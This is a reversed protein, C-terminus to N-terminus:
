YLSNVLINSMMQFEEGLDIIVVKIQLTHNYVPIDIKSIIPGNENYHLFKPYVLAVHNCRNKVSYALMQYIDSQSIKLNGNQDIAEKYKADLILRVQNHEDLLSIDPNLQVFNKDNLKGLYNVPGQYKPTLKENESNYSILEFLYKEFLRNVPVLFSFTFDDGKNLNPQSNEYFLKAMNFVPRYVSNLRTFKVTKWIENTIKIPKVDELWLLAQKLKIKNEQIKTIVILHQIITKFIRNLLINTSFDDYSVHHIHHRFSNQKISETFDIKGKIFSQNESHQIYGRNVDRKLLNLLQDIFLTIYLELLDGNYTSLKQPSPIRKISIFRSHYLMKVLLDFSQNFVEESSYWTIKPYIMLRTKNIHVFGVYHKILLKGDAELSVNNEGIISKLDLIDAEQEKTLTLGISQDEFIKILSSKNM